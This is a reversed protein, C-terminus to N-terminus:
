WDTETQQFKVGLEELIPKVQKDWCEPCIEAWELKSTGGENYMHRTDSSRTRVTVSRTLSGGVGGDEEEEWKDSNHHVDQPKPHLKGCLDCTQETVRTVTETRPVKRTLKM